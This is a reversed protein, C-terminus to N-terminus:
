KADLKRRDEEKPVHSFVKGGFVRLHRVVVNYGYLTEFPSKPNLCKTPGRNKLYVVIGISKAWFGNTLIKGKIM